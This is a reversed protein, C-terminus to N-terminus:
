LGLLPDLGDLGATELTAALSVNRPSQFHGCPTRRTEAALDSDEHTQFKRRLGYM